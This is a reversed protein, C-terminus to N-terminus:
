NFMTGDELFTWENAECTEEMEEDSINYFYEYGDKELLANFESFFNKVFLDFKDIIQKNYNIEYDELNEKWEEAFNIRYAISYCYRYNNPLIINNNCYKTYELILDMEQKSLMQSKIENLLNIPIKNIDNMLNIFDSVKLEGYINLGDGQCSSLSYQVKLNSHPFMYHLTELCDENFWDNRVEDQLFETKVKEKARESLESYAYVEYSKTVIKM